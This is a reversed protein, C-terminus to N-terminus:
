PEPKPALEKVAKKLDDLDFPKQMIRDAGAARYQNELEITLYASLIIIKGNFATVKLQKVLELGTMEPMLHDTILIQYHAPFLKIRELADRASHTVDISHGKAKLALRISIAVSLEDDVALINLVESDM